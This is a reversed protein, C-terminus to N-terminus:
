TDNHSLPRGGDLGHKRSQGPSAMADDSALLQQRGPHCRRLQPVTHADAREDSYMGADVSNAVGSGAQFGVIERCHHRAAVAREKSAAGGGM